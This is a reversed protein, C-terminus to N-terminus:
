KGKSYVKRTTIEKSSGSIKYESCVTLNGEKDYSYETISKNDASKVTISPNTSTKPATYKGGKAEQIYDIVNNEKYNVIWGSNDQAKEPLKINKEAEKLTKQEDM